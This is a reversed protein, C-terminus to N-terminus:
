PSAAEDATAQPALLVPGTSHALVTRAVPGLHSGLPLLHHRRGLVVLESQDAAALLADAAPDFRVTTEVEVGPTAANLADVTPAVSARFQKEQEARFAPDVAYLGYGGAVWWAHLVVLRAGRRAAEEHGLRLLGAAEGADQVAVTVVPPRESRPVWDEPVSVVPVAARSAVGNVTSGTIIRRLIGHRHHQLVAMRARDALQVLEGVVWGDAVVEGTVPIAPDALERAKAVAADLTARAEESAGAYLDEYPGADPLRLVHVLHVPSGLRRAEELAFTLSAGAGNDGVAVLVAGEPQTM